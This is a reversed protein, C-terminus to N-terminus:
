EIEKDMWKEYKKNIDINIKGIFPIDYSHMKEIEKKIKNYNKNLSKLLLMYEKNDVIKGKWRYMSNIPFFNTCAVLKKNILHASIKKAEKKDKCTVYIIM